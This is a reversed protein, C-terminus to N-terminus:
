PQAAGTLVQQRRREQWWAYLPLWLISGPLALMVLYPLAGAFRRVAAQRRRCTGLLATIRGIDHRSV